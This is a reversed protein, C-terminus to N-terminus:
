KNGKCWGDHDGQLGQEKDCEQCAGTRGKGDDLRSRGDRFRRFDWIRRTGKAHTSTSSCRSRVELYTNCYKIASRAALKTELVFTDKIDQRCM